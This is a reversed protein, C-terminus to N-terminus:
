RARAAALVPKPLRQLLAHLLLPVLILDDVIGPVPLVLTLPSVAYLGLLLLAPLLWAPRAPHRLAFWALHLDARGIRFLVLLLRKM